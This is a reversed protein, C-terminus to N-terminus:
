EPRELEAAIADRIQAAEQNSKGLLERAPELQEKAGLQELDRLTKAFDSLGVTATAGALAHATLKIQLCDGKEAVAKLQGIKLDLQELYLKLLEITEQKDGGAAESFGGLDVPASRSDQNAASQPAHTEM